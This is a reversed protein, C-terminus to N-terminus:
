VLVDTYTAQGHLELSIAYADVTKDLTSAPLSPEAFVPGPTISTGIYFNPDPDGFSKYADFTRGNDLPTGSDFVDIPQDLLGPEQVQGHTLSHATFELDSVDTWSQMSLWSRRDEFEMEAPKDLVSFDGTDGVFNQGVVLQDRRAIAIAAAYRGAWQSPAWVHMTRGNVAWAQTQLGQLWALDLGTRKRVIVPTQYLMAQTLAQIAQTSGPSNMMANMVLGRSMRNWNAATPFLDSFGIVPAALLTPESSLLDNEINNLKAWFGNYIQNAVSYLYTAIRLSTVQTTAVVNGAISATLTNLGKSLRIGFVTNPETVVAYSIDAVGDQAINERVISIKLVQGDYGASQFQFTTGQYPTYPVPFARFDYFSGPTVGSFRNARTGYWLRM